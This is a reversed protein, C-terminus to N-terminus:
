IVPLPVSPMPSFSSRFISVGRLLASAEEIAVVDQAGERQLLAAGVSTHKQADLLSQVFGFCSIM